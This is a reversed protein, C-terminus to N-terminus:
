ISLDGPLHYSSNTTTLPLLCPMFKVVFTTGDSKSQAKYITGYGGGM